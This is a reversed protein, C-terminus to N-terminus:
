RDGKALFSADFIEVDFCSEFLILECLRLLEFLKHLFGSLRKLLHELGSLLSHLLLGLCLRIGRVSLGCAVTLIQLVEVVHRESKENTLIRGFSNGLAVVIYRFCAGNVAIAELTDFKM